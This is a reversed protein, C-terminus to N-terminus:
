EAEDGLKGKYNAALLLVTSWAAVNQQLQEKDIKDLTDDPTHHLDFYRTGDQQLDIVSSQTASLIPRIDAGGGAKKDSAAVSLPRLAANIRNQLDTTGAPLNFEVRWVRDAGFDSEMALAHPKDKYRKAYDRGGFVGVEEAGAWFIRITRKPRVTAMVKKAAAAVIGCGAANDFASPALDWSDLHCAAIIVGASPDSGPVEAIVNGSTQTGIFKPTLTLKIKVPKGRGIMRVLNEADPVSLAAAPIPSVGDEFRTNGTHPNRHYDTGTSRIIYAAAGKKAAINPGAWRLPGYKGYDAGDNRAQMNHTIFVIKGKVREPAVSKLEEMSGLLVVEGELGDEGTSGSNGIATLVLQQPFPSLVEAIEKGRVWTPMEFEEIRVNSFGLSKLRRVSWQRARAEAETGALRQGVETTMGETIAYAIDDSQAYKQFRSLEADTQATLPPACIFAPVVGLIAWLQPTPHKWFALNKLPSIMPKFKMM